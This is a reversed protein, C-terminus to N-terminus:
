KFKVLALEMFRDMVVKRLEAADFSTDLIRRKINRKVVKIEDQKDFFNVIDTAEDLMAVLDNVVQKIEDNVSEDISENGTIRIIEALLINYFAFETESLGLDNAKRQHDTAISERFEMLLDLQKGWNEHTKEIIAKLKEALSKFYEPDDDINVSIHHKIAHEIESAKAKGTKHGNLKEKFDGALLDVPPIKPDVGTSYIHKDILKRVKEGVGSINLQPDRYLNRAGHNIKGLLKLDNLYPQAAVDPMIIDMQKCFKRFDIEFQQRIAEDKLVLICADIDNKDVQRFHKMVRTHTAKLKPIEDKLDKLTGAIDETSFMDLAETLYDSLGYYDVIFGRQKNAATRNVRTIAQLLAHERLKRDLYMVQCIPADFGTLLMDKVVIISLPQEALPKKFNEIQLKQKKGDTYDAFFAEDNHSGSIIVESQPAGLEDLTKKYLVASRRSPSVIMGKFGNPEIHEKYHKFYGSMIISSIDRCIWQIRKPSELIALETGYKKKIAIKEEDTKDKFYEDFLSDLSDGTVKTKSERGEYLIQVTAGDAVAQEITYTDIYSGFESRTKQTKILPTGTFAIKAANPLGTNLAVGLGGYNSRHAEDILVAIKESENLVPFDFDDDGEQFKQMMGIVLDSADKQLLVKFDAVSKAHYVTEGQTKEFTSKLQTDLQTRDTIFVLKYEKLADDRRMKIALFVMTLSKGSGQTHWIIGGREKKSAGTKIRKLTKHM